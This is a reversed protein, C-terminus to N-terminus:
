LELEFYRASEYPNFRYPSIERFGYDLYLKIAVAMSSLTDLKIKDYKLERALKISYELLMRGIGLNRFDRKVFMRKLECEGNGIKRIGAVGIVQNDLLALVLGGEPESYMEELNNIEIDFDQFSLDFGLWDNYELIIEKGLAFDNANKAKIIKIDSIIM